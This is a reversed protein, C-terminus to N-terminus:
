PQETCFVEFANTFEAVRGKLINAVAASLSGATVRSDIGATALSALNQWKSRLLVLGQGSTMAADFSALDQRDSAVKESAAVGDEAKIGSEIDAKVHTWSTQLAPLLVTNRSAGACGLTLTLLLGMLTLANNNRM